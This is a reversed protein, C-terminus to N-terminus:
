VSTVSPLDNIVSFVSFPELKRRARQSDIETGETHVEKEAIHVSNVWAPMFSTQFPTWNWIVGSGVRRHHALKDRSLVLRYSYAIFAISTRRLAAGLFVEWM